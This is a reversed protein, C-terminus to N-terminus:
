DVHDKIVRSQIRLDSGIHRVEQLTLHIKNQMSQLIPHNFMPNANGALLIPAMYIILEDILKNELLSGNLSPGAEVWLDNIELLALHAMLKILDIRNNDLPLCISQVGLGNLSLLKQQPDDGYVLLINKQQLIKSNLKISLHSDLIVRLPQKEPSLNRVTLEPNDHNITRIGTLIACSKERWIQVDNRSDESTIWQSDGNMLSTRGDLSTAIKSRIYPRNLTMRYNFGLNLEKAQAALVDSIVEINNNKLFAIGKGKVLPNPDEMAVIVRKIRASIIADICPPTKGHHACPELTVYLDANKADVGAEMLAIIEAHSEGAKLHYGQGIIKNDKVVIAGVCPNPKTKGLGKKALSLAQSMFSYISLDEKM